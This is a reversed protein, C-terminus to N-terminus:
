ISTCPLASAPAILARPSARRSLGPRGVSVAASFHFPTNGVVITGPLASGNRFRALYDGKHRFRDQTEDRPGYRPDAYALPVICSLFICPTYIVLFMIFPSALVLITLLHFRFPV